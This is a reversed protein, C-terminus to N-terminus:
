HQPFFLGYVLGIIPDRSKPGYVIAGGLAGVITILGLGVIALVITFPSDALFRAIRVMLGGWSTACWRQGAKACWTIVASASLLLYFYSTIFGFQAHKQVLADGELNGLREAIEGTQLSVLAGATGLVLFIVKTPFWFSQRTFLPLRIIEMLSYVTLLAVPFHVTIPHFDMRHTFLIISSYVGDFKSAMYLSTHQSAHM